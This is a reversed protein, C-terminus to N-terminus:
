SDTSAAVQTRWWAVTEAIGEEFDTMARFGIREEARSVDLCRRPQGDPRSTDWVFQGKFGLHRGICAALDAISIERGSGINMPEPDNYDRTALVIGRAADKVHLFERTVQGSGWLTVQSAGERVAKEVKRIIAPIVHSTESDFNDKPGYLNVPLLFIGPFGYQTRYAELQTLLMKKALGYPANTEEPYGKWLEDEKFPVPTMKPYSCITGIAVFKKIGGFQCGEEILEMGMALNEYFFSGPKSQNAGIGGVVAALHIVVDPRLDKYMSAVNSKKRLDYEDSRVILIQDDVAGHEKLEAVVQQGLFGRGGTVAIRSSLLDSM